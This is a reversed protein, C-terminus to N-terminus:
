LESLDGLLELHSLVGRHDAHGCRVNRSEDALLLHLVRFGPTMMKVDSFVPPIPTEL